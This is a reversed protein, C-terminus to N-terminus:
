MVKTPPGDKDEDGSNGDIKKKFQSLGCTPCAKLSAFEDRYLVCDNPCAHIKQYELGMPCLVKKAEYNRIPLTNNEPLMEKLLELLETFSTDTWGHRAKLSFLKLTASLRTFNTCGPYLQEESDSKLSDYLHVKGFNEEGVDRVMDELHDNMWDDVYDTGRSTTPKDLVEGHWTWLTYSRMIGFIFLHDRMTGLDHRIQNLCCVCPCFYTGNSSIAHEQVYQLFESVGKEYEESIRCENM